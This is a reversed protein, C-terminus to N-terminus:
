NYYIKILCILCCDAMGFKCKVYHLRGNGECVLNAKDFKYILFDFDTSDHLEVYDGLQDEFEEMQELLNAELVGFEYLSEVLFSECGFHPDNPWNKSILV